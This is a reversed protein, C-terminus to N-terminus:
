FMMFFNWNNTTNISPSFSAIISASTSSTHTVWLSTSGAPTKPWNSDWIQLTANVWTRLTTGSIATMNTWTRFIWITWCNDITTTLFTETTTRTAYWSVWSINPQWTQSVENYSTNQMIVTTSSSTTAVINNTGTSPNLLYYMYIWESSWNNIFNIRSMSISNYTVNTIRDSNSNIYLTVVLLRDYGSCTHSLTHSTGTTWSNFSSTDFAIAM